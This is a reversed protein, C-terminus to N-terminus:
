DITGVLGQLGPYRHIFASHLRWNESRMAHAAFGDVLWVDGTVPDAHIADVLHGPWNALRLSSAYLLQFEDNGYLDQREVVADRLPGHIILDIWQGHPVTLQSPRPMHDPMLAQYAERTPQALWALLRQLPVSLGLRELAGTAGATDLLAGILEVLPHDPATPMTPDLARELDAYQVRPAPHAPSLLRGELLAKVNLRQPRLLADLPRPRPRQAQVQAQALRRCDRIFSVLWQDAACTPPTVLSPLEWFPIAPYRTLPSVAPTPLVSNHHVHEVARTPLVRQQPHQLQSPVAPIWRPQISPQQKGSDVEEFDLPGGTATAAAAAAAGANPVSRADLLPAPISTPIYAAAAGYEDTNASSSPSSVASPVGPVGHGWPETAEPVPVYSPGLEPMAAYTGPAPFPSSRASPVPGSVPPLSEDYVSSRTYSQGVPQSERMRMIEEELARNRRLLEQVTQTQDRNQQSKLEALENELREIHEKTRARIARQAERDNARKRALQAPNLTSVSRTGKRKTITSKPPEDSSSRTM